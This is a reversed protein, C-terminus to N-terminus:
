DKGTILAAVEAPRELHVQHGSDLEVLRFDKNLADRCMGAYGPPVAKSRLAVVLTTDTGAPPTVAPRALESYTAAVMPVSFRFRWRGDIQQVLHDRIEADVLGSAEPPWHRATQESAQEPTDFTPPDLVGDARQEAVAPPLGIGPDLLVLREVRGPALRALHVAITAGLSHGVIVARPLELHDLVDLIDAAHQELTWPPHTTSQGHGRLDPAHVRVGPLHNETLTRFRGGHGTLGHLAIVPTGHEDGFHHIHLM